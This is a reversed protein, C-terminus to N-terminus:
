RLSSTFSYRKKARINEKLTEVLKSKSVLLHQVPRVSDEKLLTMRRRSNMDRILLGGTEMERITALVESFDLLLVMTTTPVTVSSLRRKVTGLSLTAARLNVAVARARMM